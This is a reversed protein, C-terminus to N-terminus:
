LREEAGEVFLAPDLKAGIGYFDLHPPQDIASCAGPAGVYVQAAQPIKNTTYKVATARPSSCADSESPALVLKPAVCGKTVAHAPNTCTSDSFYASPGYPVSPLCRMKGDEAKTFACDENRSSDFWGAFQQSGDVGKYVRRKLRSGSVHTDAGPTAPTTAPDDPKTDKPGADGVADPGITGKSSSCAVVAAALVLVSYRM